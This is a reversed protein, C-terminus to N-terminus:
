AGVGHAQHLKQRLRALGYCLLDLELSVARRLKESWSHVELEARAVEFIHDILVVSLELVREGGVIGAGVADSLPQSLPVVAIRLLEDLGDGERFGALVHLSDQPISIHVSLKVPCRLEEGM